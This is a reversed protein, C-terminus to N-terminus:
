SDGVKDSLANIFDKDDQTLGSGNTIAWVIEQIRDTIRNYEEMEDDTFDTVDIRKFKLADVLFAILKSTSTGRIIYSVLNNSGEKGKNICYVFLIINHRASGYINIRVEQLCIGHQYNNDDTENEDHKYEFVCGAPIVVEQDVPTSNELVVNLMVWQGGSGFIGQYDKLNSENRIFVDGALSVPSDGAGKVEGVLSIGEPLVFPKLIELEGGAEGMGPINGPDDKSKSDDKQCSILIGSILLLVVALFKIKKMIIVKVLKSYNIKIIIIM